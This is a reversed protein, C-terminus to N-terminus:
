VHNIVPELGPQLRDACCPSLFGPRAAGGRDEPYWPSVVDERKM